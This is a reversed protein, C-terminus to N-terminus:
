TPVLWSFNSFIEIQRAIRNPNKRERTQAMRHSALLLLLRRSSLGMPERLINLSRRRRARSRACCTATAFACALTLARICLQDIHHWPDDCVISQKIAWEFVRGASPFGGLFVWRTSTSFEPFDRYNLRSPKERESPLAVDFSALLPAIRSASHVMVASRHETQDLHFISIKDWFAKLLIRNKWTFAMLVPWIEIIYRCIPSRCIPSINDTKLLPVATAFHRIFIELYSQLYQLFQRWMLGSRVNGSSWFGAM